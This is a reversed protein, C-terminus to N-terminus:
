ERIPSPAMSGCSGTRGRTASPRTSSTPPRHCWCAFPAPTAQWAQLPLYFTADRFTYHVADTARDCSSSSGIAAFTHARQRATYNQHSGGQPIHKKIASHSHQLPPLPQAISCRMDIQGVARNQDLRTLATINQEPISPAFHSLVLANTNSPNGVVVVKVNKSAVRDLAQGQAKFINVNKAISDRREMGPRRPFPGGLITVDAHQFAVRAGDTEVINRVLPFTCDHLEMVVGHLADLAPKIELLRLEILQDRGIVDGRATLPFFCYAIQSAAGSVCVTFTEKSM